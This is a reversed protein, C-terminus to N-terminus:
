ASRPPGRPRDCRGSRAARAVHVAEEPGVARALRRRQAHREPQDHGLSPVTSSNPRSGSARPLARAPPRRRTRRPAASRGRGAARALVELQEGGEVAAARALADVLHERGDLQGRAGPVADAAVRVAHALAQPDGGRQQATRAQQDEVLGGGAQVRGPHAVHAQQDAAQGVVADGHQEGAVLQGLHLFQAVAHRDDLGPADDVLAREGVQAALAAGAVAQARGVVRARERDHALLGPDLVRRGALVAEAELGLLLRTPASDSASARAPTPMRASVGSSAVSSSRNKRRVSPSTGASRRAAPRRRRLEPRAVLTGTAHAGSRRRRAAPASRRARRRWCSRRGLAQRDPAPLQALEDRLLAGVQPQRDADDERQDEDSAWCRCWWWSWSAVVEEERSIM